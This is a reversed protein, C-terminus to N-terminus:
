QGFPLALGKGGNYAKRGGGDPRALWVGMFGVREAKKANRPVVM